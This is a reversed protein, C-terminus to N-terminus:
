SASLTAAVPYQLKNVKATPSGGAPYNYILLSNTCSDPAALTKGGIIAFQLIDCSKKLTITAVITGTTGSVSVDDIVSTHASDYASNGVALYKGDWAIGGPFGVTGGLSISELKSSGAPLEFFVFAYSTNLGDIFLNGKDDYGCFYAFALGPNTYVVPTGKADAYVLVGGKGSANATDTVALNGTSPDVPLGAVSDDVSGIRKTGGHAYEGVTTSKSDVIWVDGSADSCLGAPDALGGIKGVRTFKSDSLIAVQNDGGESVYLLSSPDTGPSLGGGGQASPAFGGGGCGALALTMTAVIFQKSM